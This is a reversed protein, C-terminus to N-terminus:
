PVRQMRRIANQTRIILEARDEKDSIIYETIMDDPIPLSLSDLWLLFTSFKLYEGIFNFRDINKHYLRRRNKFDKNWWVSLIAHAISSSDTNIIGNSGYSIQVM